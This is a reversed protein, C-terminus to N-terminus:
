NRRIGVVVPARGELAATVNEVSQHVRIDQKDPNLSMITQIKVVMDIIIDKQEQALGGKRAIEALADVAELLKEAKFAASAKAAAAQVDAPSSKFAKDFATTDKSVKTGGSSCGGLLMPIAILAVSLFEAPKTKM